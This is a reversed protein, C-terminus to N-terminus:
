DDGLQNVIFDEVVDCAEKLRPDPDPDDHLVLKTVELVMTLAEVLELM